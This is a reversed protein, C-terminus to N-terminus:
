QAFMVKVSFSSSSFKPSSEVPSGRETCTETETQVEKDHRVNPRVQQRQLCRENSSAERERDSDQWHNSSQAKSSGEETGKESGCSSPTLLECPQTAKDYFLHKICILLVFVYGILQQPSFNLLRSLLADAHPCGQTMEYHNIPERGGGVDCVLMM